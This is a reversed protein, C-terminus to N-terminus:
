QVSHELVEVDASRAPEAVENLAGFAVRDVVRTADMGVIVAVKRERIEQEAGEAVRGLEHWLCSKPVASRGFDAGHQQTAVDSLGRSRQRLARFRRCQSHTGCVIM